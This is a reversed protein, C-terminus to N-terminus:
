PLIASRGGTWLRPVRIASQQSHLQVGLTNSGTELFDIVPQHFSKLRQSKRRQVEESM